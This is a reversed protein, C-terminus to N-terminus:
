YCNLKLLAYFKQQWMAGNGRYTTMTVCQTKMSICEAGCAPPKQKIGKNLYWILSSNCLYTLVPKLSAEYNGKSINNIEQHLNTITYQVNM